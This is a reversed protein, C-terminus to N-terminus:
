DYNANQWWSEEKRHESTLSVEKSLKIMDLRANYKWKLTIHCALVSKCYQKSYIFMWLCQTVSKTFTIQITQFKIGLVHFANWKFVFYEPFTKVFEARQSPFYLLILWKYYYKIYKIKIYEAKYMLSRFCWCKLDIHSSAINLAHVAVIYGAKILCKIWM